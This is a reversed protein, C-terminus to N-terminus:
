SDCAKLIAERLSDDGTGKERLFEEAEHMIKEPPFDALSAMHGKTGLLLWGRDALWAQLGKSFCAEIILYQWNVDLDSLVHKMAQALSAREGQDHDAALSALYLRVFHRDAMLTPSPQLYQKAFAPLDDPLQPALQNPSDPKTALFRPLRFALQLPLARASSWGVIGTINYDSDVIINEAALNGHSVSFISPEFELTKHIVYRLLARHILCDRVGPAPEKDVERAANMVKGDVVTTLFTLTSAGPRSVKTREALELQIGMIQRLIKERHQPKPASNTWELSKGHVWSMVLYPRKILNDHGADYHILKPSWRFGSEDLKALMSAESEVVAAVTKPTLSPGTQAPVHFAWSVERDDPFRLAYVQSWGSQFPSCDTGFCLMPWSGDNRLASGLALVAGPSIPSNSAM